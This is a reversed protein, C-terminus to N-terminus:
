GALKNVIHCLMYFFLVMGIFMVLSDFFEKNEKKAMISDYREPNVLDQGDM